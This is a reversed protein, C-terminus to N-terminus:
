TASAPCAPTRLTGASGKALATKDAAEVQRATRRNGRKPSKQVHEWNFLCHYWYVTSRKFISM